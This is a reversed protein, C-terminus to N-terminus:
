KRTWKACKRSFNSAFGAVGSSISVSGATPYRSTHLHLLQVSFTSPQLNSSPSNGAPKCTIAAYVWHCYAVANVEWLGDFSCAAGVSSSSSWPTNRFIFIHDLNTQDNFTASLFYNAFAEVSTLEPCNTRTLVLPQLYAFDRWVWLEKLSSMQDFPTPPLKAAGEIANYNDRTCFHFIKPGAGGLVINTFGNDACRVDAINTWGTLDFTGQIGRQV